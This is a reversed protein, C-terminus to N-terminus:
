HGKLAFQMAVDRVTLLREYRKALAVLPGSGDAFKATRIWLARDRASVLVEEGRIRYIRGPEGIFPPESLESSFLTVKRSGYFSFAGPYPITLARIRNHIEKASQLDWLILGDDPFRMPFYRAGAFPQPRQICSGDRMQSLVKVLLSPFATNSIRHLDAITDNPGIPFTQEGLVDGTDVGEDVQIISLAFEQEGNILAWNLPSSGRYEPLKGAHLNVCGRPFLDLFAKRAIQSFGAFVALDAGLKRVHMLADPANLNEVEFSPIGLKAAKAAIVAANESKEKRASLLVAVIKFGANSIAELCPPSREQDGVFLIKM